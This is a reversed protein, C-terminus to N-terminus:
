QGDKKVFYTEIDQNESVVRQFMQPITAFTAEVGKYGPHPNKSM